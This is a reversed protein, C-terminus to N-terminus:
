GPSKNLFKSRLTKYLSRNPVGYIISPRTAGWSQFSRSECREDVGLGCFWFFM